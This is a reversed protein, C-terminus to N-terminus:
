SVGTVQFPGFREVAGSKLTIATAIYIDEGHVEAAASVASAIGDSVMWQLAEQAYSVARQATEPTAEAQELLWLRSGFVDGDIEFRDPWFGRRPTDASVPDGPLAPADCLLSNLVATEVDEGSDLLAGGSYVLDCEGADTRRLVLM